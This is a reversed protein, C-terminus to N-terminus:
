QPPAGQTSGHAYVAGKDLIKDIHGYVVNPYRALNMMQSDLSLKASDKALLSRMNSENIKVAHIKGRGVPNLRSLVDPSTALQANSVDIPRGGSFVPKAGEVARFVIPKDPTGSVKSDLTLTKDFYYNGAAILIVIEESLGKEAIQKAATEQAHVLSQFPRLKTGPNSDSGDPSIYVEYAHAPFVLSLLLIAQINIPKVVEVM